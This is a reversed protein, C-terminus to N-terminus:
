PPGGNKVVTPLFVRKLPVEVAIYNARTLTGTGHTGGVTLTVTYADAVVYIHTPDDCASSSSGDGYDWLCADYDGTSLNSFSVQLPVPGSTPTGTFDAVLPVFEDAGIDYGTGQPRPEGDIDVDPALYTDYGADIAPSTSELHYDRNSVNVFRPDLFINLYADAPDGNANTTATVGYSSPYGSFHSGNGWFGNYGVRPTGGAFAALGVTNSLILNNFVDFHDVHQTSEIGSLTHSVIVNNLIDPGTSDSSNHAYAHVGREGNAVIINNRV